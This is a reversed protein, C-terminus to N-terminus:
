GFSEPFTLEEYGSWRQWERVFGRAARHYSSFWVFNHEHHWALFSEVKAQIERPSDFPYPVARWCFVRGPFGTAYPERGWEIDVPFGVLASVSREVIQIAAKYGRDEPYLCPKLLRGVPGHPGWREGFDGILGEIIGYSYLSYRFWEGELRHGIFRGHLKAEDKQNGPITGIISLLDPSGTQLQKLRKAPDGDTFGIKIDSGNTIFYIM